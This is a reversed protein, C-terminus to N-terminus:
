DDCDESRLPNIICKSCNDVLDGYENVHCDDGNTWCEYCTAIRDDQELEKIEKESLM